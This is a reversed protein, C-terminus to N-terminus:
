PEERVEGECYRVLYAYLEMATADSEMEIYSLAMDLLHRAGSEFMPALEGEENARKELASEQM